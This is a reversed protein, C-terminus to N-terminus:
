EINYALYTQTRTQKFGLRRYLHLARENRQWAGIQVQKSGRAALRHIAATLFKSGLGQGRYAPLLGFPEIEGLDTKPMRLWAFGATKDGDLLFLLDTPHDLDATVEKVSTYPQYWPADRFTDDYSKRFTRVAAALPFTALRFGPPLSLEKLRGPNELMMQVEIHEIFFNQSQLFHAARSNLNYVGHSLQLPGNDKLADIIAQLLHTGYGQRRKSPEICGQLDLVGALGSVPVVFAFGVLNNAESIVWIKGGIDLADNLYRGFSFPQMQNAPYSANHIKVLGAADEPQYPRVTRARQAM